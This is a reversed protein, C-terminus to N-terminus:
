KHVKESSDVIDSSGLISAIRDGVSRRYLFEFHSCHNMPNPHVKKECEPCHTSHYLGDDGKAVSDRESFFCHVEVGDPIDFEKISKLFNSGPRMQWVDKWMFGLPTVLALWTLNTGKFPTGMTIVKKCYRHGGLKLLWWLAVFGGKSHAVIHVQDFDHRKFQRKLKYDIFEATEIIGRTFFVGFLGGLNFSLVEYGKNTLQRELVTLSKRSSFFGYLLLVPIKKGSIAHRKVISNNLHMEETIENWTARLRMWLGSGKKRSIYEIIVGPILLFFCIISVASITSNFLSTNPDSFAAFMYAEPLVSFFTAALVYKFRFDVIGFLLSLLDFPFIPILRSAITIKWDQSRIFKLTQPLNSSLWPHVLKKGIPKGLGYIIATSLTAGVATLLAGYVPGFPGGAM